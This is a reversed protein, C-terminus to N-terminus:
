RCVIFGLIPLGCLVDGLVPIKSIPLLGDEGLLGDLLDGLIADLLGELVGTVDSDLGGALVNTLGTLVGVVVAPDLMSLGPIQNLGPIASLPVGSLAGGVLSLLSQLQTVGLSGLGAEDLIGLLSGLQDVQKSGGLLSELLGTLADVVSRLAVTLGTPDAAIVQDVVQQLLGTLVTIDAGPPLGGEGFAGLLGGLLAQLQAPGIDDGTLGGLVGTLEGLPGLLTDADLDTLLALLNDLDAGRAGPLAADIDLLQGLLGDLLATIPATVEAPLLALLPNDTLLGNLKGIQDKVQDQAEKKSGPRNACLDRMSRQADNRATRRTKVIKNQARLNRTRVRVVRKAKRFKKVATNRKKVTIRDARFQKRARVARKKTRARVKKAKKLRNKIRSQKTVARTLANQTRSARGQASVCTSAATTTSSATATTPALAAPVVREAPAATAPTLASLGVILGLSVVAATVVRTLHRMPHM